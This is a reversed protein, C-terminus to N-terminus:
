FDMKVDQRKNDEMEFFEHSSMGSNRAVISSPFSVVRQNLYSVNSNYLRRAAQLHEEVDMVSVQLQKFNESSRLEPYNEAVVNIYNSAQDLDNVTAKRDKMNMGSRLEITEFITDKEYKMYGKCIDYMKTLVDYRKILAVDIDSLAEDIKVESRRLNNMTSIYWIGIILILAIPFGILFPM